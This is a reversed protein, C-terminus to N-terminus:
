FEEGIVERSARTGLSGWLGYPSANGPARVGTLKATSFSVFNVTGATSDGAEISDTIFKVAGDAMVVHCGGPHRSSPPFLGPYLTHGVWCAERNPPLITQFGTHAPYFTAWSSGRFHVSDAGELSPATGGDSGNSWFQPREPSVWQQCLSPNGPVGSSDTNGGANLAPQTRKDRDGLSTAIEGLAITNSLGDLIDRFKHTYRLGFAGRDTGRSITGYVSSVNFNNDYPGNIQFHNISDGLNVAYNTRARGPSGSVGPDSPCRFAVIETMYPIYADGSWNYAPTPGMAPYPLPATDAPPSAGDIDVNMPNSIQEWLGQQEMFPLMGVFASLSANNYQRSGNFIGAGAQTTGAGQTPLQNYASHYNHMALGLQKMNNGCSMRRAAERAAQVAPLLLGVLVGIIAIVVLLEVLTFGRRSRNSLVSSHVM